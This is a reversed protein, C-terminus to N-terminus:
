CCGQCDLLPRHSQKHVQTESASEGHSILLELMGDGDFDGVAAGTGHMASEMADGINTQVWTDGSRIFLRNAGPINNYFLEEEGDNDFDAAIVTRIRSPLSMEAPASDVFNTDEQIFLKHQGNWNGYAIDLKGDMDGDIVTTGRGNNNCDAIGLAVAEEVYGSGTNRYFWNCGNENNAFIDMRNSSRIPASILARGGTTQALGLAPAVDELYGNADVEYLKTPAANSSIDAQRGYNSVLM